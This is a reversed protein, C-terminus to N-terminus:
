CGGGGGGGRVFDQHCLLKGVDAVKIFPVNQNASVLFLSHCISM